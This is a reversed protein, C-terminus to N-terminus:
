LLGSKAHATKTLCAFWNISVFKQYSKTETVNLGCSEAERKLQWHTFTGRQKKKQSFQNKILLRFATFSFPHYFSILVKRRSVRAAERLIQLRIVPDVIHQLLRWVIVCDFSNDAFPLKEADAKVFEIPASPAIKRAEEMMADSIDAGTYHFGKGTILPIFRGTGCPCDLVTSGPTLDDLWAGMILDERSTRKYRSPDRSKKYAAAKAVSQWNSKARYENM